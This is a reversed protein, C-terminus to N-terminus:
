KDVTQQSMAKRIQARQAFRAFGEVEDDQVRGLEGRVVMVHRPSRTRVLVDIQVADTQKARASM